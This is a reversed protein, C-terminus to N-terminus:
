QMKRAVVNMRFHVDSISNTVGWTHRDQELEDLGEEVPRRRLVAARLTAWQKNAKLLSLM